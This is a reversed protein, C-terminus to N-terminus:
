EGYLGKLSNYKESLENFEETTSNFKIELEYYKSVKSNIKLNNIEDDKNNILVKYDFLQKKM